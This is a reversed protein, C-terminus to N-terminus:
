LAKYLAHVPAYALVSLMLVAFVNSFQDQFKPGLSHTDKVHLISILACFLIDINGELIFRIVTAEINHDKFWPIVRRMYVSEDSFFKLVAWRIVVFCAYYVMALFM